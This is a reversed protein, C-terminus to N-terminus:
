LFVKWPAGGAQPIFDGQGAAVGGGRQGPGKRRQMTMEWQKEGSVRGGHHERNRGSVMSNVMWKREEVPTSEGGQEPSLRQVERAGPGM